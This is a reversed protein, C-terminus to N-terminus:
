RTPNHTYGTRFQFYIWIYEIVNFAKYFFFKYRNKSYLCAIYSQNTEKQFLRIAIICCLCCIFALINIFFVANFYFNSGYM